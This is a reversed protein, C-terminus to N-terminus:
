IAASDFINTNLPIARIPCEVKVGRMLKNVEKTESIGRTAGM